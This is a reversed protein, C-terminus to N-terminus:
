FALNNSANFHRLHASWSHNGHFKDIGVRFQKAELLKGWRGLYIKGSLGERIFRGLYILGFASLLDWRVQRYIAPEAKKSDILHM